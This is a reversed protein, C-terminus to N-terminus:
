DMSGEELPLALQHRLKKGYASGMDMMERIDEVCRVRFFGLGKKRLEEDQHYSLHVMDGSFGVKETKVSASRNDSNHNLLAFPGWRLKVWSPFLISGTVVDRAQQFADLLAGDVVRQGKIRAAFKGDMLFPVHASGLCAEIVENKNKFNSIIERKLRPVATVVVQVKGSCREAADEPLLHHLWTRLMGGWVGVLGLPREFVGNELALKHALDLADETDIQCAGLVAALAGASAGRLSYHETLSNPGKHCLEKIAGAMWWFLVGGGGINFVPQQTTTTGAAPATTLPVSNM